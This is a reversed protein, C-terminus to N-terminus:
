SSTDSGSRARTRRSFLPRHFQIGLQSGMNAAVNLLLVDPLFDRQGARWAGGSLHYLAFLLAAGAAPWAGGFPRVCAALLGATLALWALDFLRWAVDGAGAAALVASHLAYVGPGNMDFADRYPAGGQSVVWAVYHMLPADHVLPWGLSRWGLYAVVAASAASILKSSVSM